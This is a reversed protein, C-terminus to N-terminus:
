KYRQKYRPRSKVCLTHFEGSTPPQSHGSRVRSLLTAFGSKIQGATLDAITGAWVEPNAEFRNGYLSRMQSFLLATWDHSLSNM